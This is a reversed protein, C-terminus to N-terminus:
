KLGLSKNNTTILRKVCSIVFIIGDAIVASSLLIRCHPWTKNSAREKLIVLEVTRHLIKLMTASLVPVIKELEYTVLPVIKM